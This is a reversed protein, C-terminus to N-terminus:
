ATLAHESLPFFFVISLYLSSVESPVWDGQEYPPPELEPARGRDRWRLFTDFRQDLEIRM